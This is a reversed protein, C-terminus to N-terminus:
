GVEVTPAGPVSVDYVSAANSRRELLVGLVEAKLASSEASGWVVTRGGRLRLEISDMTPAAVARVQRGLSRPLSAVVAAAEERAGPETGVTMVPLRPPAQAVTRYLVGGADVLRLGRPGRVAAVPTRETVEITVTHPWSRGIDAREVVQVEEVRRRVQDVDVRALPDGVPVAAAAAVRDAPVTRVGTVEVREVALVSSFFV